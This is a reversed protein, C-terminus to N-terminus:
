CKIFPNRKVEDKADMTIEDYMWKRYRRCTPGCKENGCDMCPMHCGPCTLDLCDCLDEGNSRLIGKEDYLGVIKPASNLSQGISRALKRKERQSTVPDFDALFKSNEDVLRNRRGRKRQQGKAQTNNGNEVPASDKDNPTESAQAVESSQETPPELTESSTAPREGAENDDSSSSLDVFDGM